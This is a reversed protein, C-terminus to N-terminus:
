AQNADIECSQATNIWQKHSCMGTNRLYFLYARNLMFM